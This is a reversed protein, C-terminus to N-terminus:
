KRGEAEELKFRVKMVLQSEIPEGGPSAPSFQAAEFWQLAAADLEPIGSHVVIAVATACGSRDIRMRLVTGGQENRKLAAPPYFTEISEGGVYAARKQWPAPPAPKGCPTKRPTFQLKATKRETNLRSTADTISDRLAAILAPALSNATAFDGIELASLIPAQAALLRPDPAPAAIANAEFFAQWYRPWFAAPANSKWYISIQAARAAEDELLEIAFNLAAQEAENENRNASRRYNDISRRTQESLVWRSIDDDITRGRMDRGTPGVFARLSAPMERGVREYESDFKALRAVAAPDPPAPPSCAALLLALLALRKV